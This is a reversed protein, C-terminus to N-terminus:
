QVYFWGYEMNLPRFPVNIGNFVLLAQNVSTEGNCEEWVDLVYHAGEILGPLPLMSETLYGKQIISSNTYSLQYQFVAESGADATWLATSNVSHYKLDSM